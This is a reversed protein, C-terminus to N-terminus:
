EAGRLPGFFGIKWVGRRAGTKFAKWDTQNWQQEQQQITAEKLQM